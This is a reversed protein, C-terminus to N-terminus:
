QQWQEDRNKLMRWARPERRKCGWFIKHTYKSYRLRVYWRDLNLIFGISGRDTLRYVSLGREIPQGEDRWHLYKM